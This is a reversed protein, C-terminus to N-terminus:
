SSQRPARIPLRRSLDEDGNDVRTLVAAVLLLKFTSCMPFREDGRHQFRTGTGSDLLAVGLRGGSELELRLVERELLSREDPSPTPTPTLAPSKALALTPLALLMSALLRRNMDM